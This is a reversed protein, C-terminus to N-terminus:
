CPPSSGSIGENGNAFRRGAAKAVAGHCTVIVALGHGFTSQKDDRALLTGPPAPRRRAKVQREVPKRSNSRGLYVTTRLRATFTAVKFPGPAGRPPPRSKM